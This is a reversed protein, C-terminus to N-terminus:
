ADASVLARVTACALACLDEDGSWQKGAGATVDNIKVVAGARWGRATALAFLPAAEMESALVGLRCWATWAALLEDEVPSSSPDIEGFFSDKTHVVGVQVDLELVGAAVLAAEVVSPHAVAPWSSALLHESSGEHRVAGTAVVIREFQVGVAVPGGGGVRLFTHVGAAGLADAVLMTSPGGMGTSSVVVSRGGLEGRVAVFPGHEIIPVVADLHEALRAVRGPDGPLLAYGSGDIATGLDLRMM